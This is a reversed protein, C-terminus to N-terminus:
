IKQFLIAKKNNKLAKLIEISKEPIVPYYLGSLQELLWHLNNLVIVYNGKKWPEEEVIYKNAFKVIKNTEELATKIEYEEWYNNVVNINNEVGNKFNNDVMHNEIVVNKINVLHLVRTLLNGLDDALHSNYLKVLDEEVWSSNQYTNLGALTYYRVATLGYKNFQEIPDVVNNMTKSMKRGHNDLITGHVLLKETKKINASALMAQFIVAQFRLNDSGCIQLTDNWWENFKNDDEYLGCSFIYNTLAEFWVYIIQESDNPVDIGHPLNTKLRSISIDDSEKILNNLEETKNSPTLFNPSNEIWRLLENKYKSLKFFYNEETIKKIEVNLHDPCKGDVLDKETKFSECGICYEASYPKKYIDGRELCETWFRQVKIKHINDSTRYFNDYEIQFKQCFDKWIVTQQELYEEVPINLEKSKEYIKTGHCDLGTNFFVNDKGLINKYYRSISDAMVLEFCTGAHPKSNVYPITSTIYKKESM